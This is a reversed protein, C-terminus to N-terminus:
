IARENKGEGMDNSLNKMIQQLVRQMGELEKASIGALAKDLLDYGAHKNEKFFRYAKETACVNKARSDEASKEVTVYGSKELLIVMKKASQRTVEVKSSIDNLTLGGKTKCIIMLMHWQKLTLEGHIKDGELQLRNTTTFLRFFLQQKQLERNM